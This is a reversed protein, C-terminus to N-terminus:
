EGDSESVGFGVRFGRRFLEQVTLVEMYRVLVRSFGQSVKRFGGRARLRVRLGQFILARLGLVLDQTTCAHQPFGM